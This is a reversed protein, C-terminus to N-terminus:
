AGESDDRHTILEGLIVGETSAIVAEVDALRAELHERASGVSEDLSSRVRELETVIASLRAAEARQDRRRQGGVLRMRLHSAAVSGGTAVGLMALAWNKLGLAALITALASAGLSGALSARYLTKTDNM